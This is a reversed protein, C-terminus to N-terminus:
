SIHFLSCYLPKVVGFTEAEDAPLVPFIHEHVVRCDVGVTELAELLTLGNLEVHHLAGLAPLSGVNLRELSRSPPVSKRLVMRIQSLPRSRSDRAWMLGLIQSLSRIGRLSRHRLHLHTPFRNGTRELPVM